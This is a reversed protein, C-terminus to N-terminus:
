ALRRGLVREAANRGLAEARASLTAREAALAQEVRAKAEAIAKQATAQAHALIEQERKQAEVRVRAREASGVRRAEALEAEVKALRVSAEGEIRKADEKYGDVRTVREEKVRLYPQWLLKTLLLVAVLFLGLSVFVTGDIDLLQQEPAQPAVAQALAAFSSFNM